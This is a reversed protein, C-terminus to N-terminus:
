ARIFNSMTQHSPVHGASWQTILIQCECASLRVLVGAMYTHPNTHTHTQAHLSHSHPLHTADSLRNPTTVGNREFDAVEVRKEWDQSGKSNYRRKRISVPLSNFQSGYGILLRIEKSKRKSEWKEKKGKLM